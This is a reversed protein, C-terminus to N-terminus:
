EVLNLLRHSMGSLARSHLYLDRHIWPLSLFGDTGLIYGPIAASYIAVSYRFSNVISHGEASLITPVSIQYTYLVGYEAFWAAWLMLTLSRYTAGLLAKPSVPRSSMQPKSQGPIIPPLARDSSKAVEGEIRRLVAEADATRGVRILWRPSEPLVSRM